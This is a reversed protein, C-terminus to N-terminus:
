NHRTRGTVSESTSSGGNQGSGGGGTNTITSNPASINSDEGNADPANPSSAPRKRSAPSIYGPALSIRDFRDRRLDRSVVGGYAVPPPSAPIAFALQFLLALTFIFALYQM